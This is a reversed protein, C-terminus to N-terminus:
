KNIWDEIQKIHMKEDQEEYEANLYPSLTYGHWHLGTDKAFENDPISQLRKYYLAHTKKLQTIAQRKSDKRHRNVLVRNYTVWNENWHSFCSPLVGSQMEKISKENEVDWGILHAVIDHLCWTGLFLETWRHKPISDIRVLLRNRTAELKSLLEQKKMM